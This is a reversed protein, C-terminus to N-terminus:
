SIRVRNPLAVHVLTKLIHNSYPGHASTNGVAAPALYKHMAAKLKGCRPSLKVQPNLRCTKLQRIHAKMTYPGLGGLHFQLRGPKAIHRLSIRSLIMLGLGFRQLQQAITYQICFSLM